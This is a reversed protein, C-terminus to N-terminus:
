VARLRRPDDRRSSSNIMYEAALEGRLHFSVLPSLEYRIALTPFPALQAMTGAVAVPYSKAHVISSSPSTGSLDRNGVLCYINNAVQHM